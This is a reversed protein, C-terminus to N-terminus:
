HSVKTWIALLSVMKCLEALAAVNQDNATEVVYEKGQIGFASAQLMYRLLTQAVAHDCRLSSRTDPLLSYEVDGDVDWELLLDRLVVVDLKPQLKWICSVLEAQPTESIAGGTTISCSQLSTVIRKEAQRIELMTHLRITVHTKDYEGAGSQLRVTKFNNPNM